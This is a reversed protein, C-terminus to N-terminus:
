KKKGALPGFRVVIWWVFQASVWTPALNATKGASEQAVFSNVQLVVVWYWFISCHSNRSILRALFVFLQSIKKTKSKERKEENSKHARACMHVCKRVCMCVRIHKVYGCTHGWVCMAVQMCVRVCACVCMCVCVLVYVCLSLWVGAESESASVSMSVFWSVSVPVSVHTFVSVFVSMSV